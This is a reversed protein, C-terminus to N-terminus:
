PQEQGILFPSWTPPPMQWWSGQREPERPTAGLGYAGEPMTRATSAVVPGTRRQAPQAAVRGTGQAATRVPAATSAPGPRTAEAAQAAPMGAQASPLPPVPAGVTIAAQTAPAQEVLRMQVISGASPIGASTLVAVKVEFADAVTDDLSLYLGDLDAPKLLWTGEGIPAGRSPRVGAPLGHMVIEFAGHNAGTVQLALPARMRQSRDMTLHVTDWDAGPNSWSAVAPAVVAAPAGGALIRLGMIAGAGTAGSAIVGLSFWALVVIHASRRVGRPAAQQPARGNANASAMLALHQMQELRQM